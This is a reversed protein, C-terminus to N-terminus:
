NESSLEINLQATSKDNEASTNKSNKKKYSDKNKRPPRGEMLIDEAKINDNIESQPMHANALIGGRSADAQTSKITFFEAKGPIGWIELSSPNTNQSHLFLDSRIQLVGVTANDRGGLWQSIETLRSTVESPTKAHILISEFVSEPIDHSGDSTIVFWKLAPNLELNIQRPELGEGMGVYQILQRFEPPPSPLKLDALQKELTDDITTLKVIGSNFVSYIRSDGINVAAWENLNNCAVASLTCGGKGQFDRYVAHNADHVAVQLKDVLTSANNNVLSAAFTSIALNACDGGRIMGGMGDCLVLAAIPSKGTEEFKVRLFIARDQNDSRNGLVSCLTVAESELETFGSKKGSELWRHIGYQIKRQSQSEAM